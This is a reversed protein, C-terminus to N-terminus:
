PQADQGRTILDVLDANFRRTAEIFPSHGIGSYVRVEINSKQALAEHVAEAPLSFDVDGIVLLMPLSLEDVLDTNDFRKGAMVRRVYYPLMVNSFEGRIRAEEDMPEASMLSMFERASEIAAQLDNSLDPMAAATPRPLLGGHSGAFLLGSLKHEGYSRVYDLAVFGGFSWAVVWPRQIDLARMVMALDDAWPEHGAYAEPSWPKGSAGHGRLDIAILRFREGLDPDDLQARWSLYSQSWGHLFIVPIGSPNGTEVINLPVGDHSIIEHFKYGAASPGSGDATVAASCLCSLFVALLSQRMLAPDRPHKVPKADANSGDPRGISRALRIPLSQPHSRRWAPVGPRLFILM